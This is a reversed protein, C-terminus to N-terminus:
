DRKLRHTLKRYIEKWKINARLFACLKISLFNHSVCIILNCCISCFNVQRDPAGDVAPGAVVAAGDAVEAVVQGDPAEVRSGDVAPGDVVVVAELLLGFRHNGDLAVEEVAVGDLRSGVEEEVEVAAGDPRSGVEEEVAAGAPPSGVEEEAAEVAAGDPLRGVEAM